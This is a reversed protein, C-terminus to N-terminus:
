RELKWSNLVPFTNRTIDLLSISKEESQPPLLYNLVYHAASLHTLLTQKGSLLPTPASVSCHVPSPTASSKDCHMPQGQAARQRHKAIPKIVM